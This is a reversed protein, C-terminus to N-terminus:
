KHGPAHKHGPADDAGHGGRVHGPPDDAGKKAFAPSAVGGVATATIALAILTRKIM